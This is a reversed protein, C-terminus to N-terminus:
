KYQRDSNWNRGIECQSNPISPDVSFKSTWNGLPHRGPISTDLQSQWERCPSQCLFCSLQPESQM